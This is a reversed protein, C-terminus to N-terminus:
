QYGCVRWEGGEQLVKYTRGALPLEQQENNYTALIKGQCSVLSAAGDAGQKTCALDKLSASVGQFADLELRAQAAWDKCAITDLRASDQKVLATLYSEVAQAAPDKGGGCASLALSLVALLVALWSMKKFSM